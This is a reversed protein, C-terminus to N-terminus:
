LVFFVYYIWKHSERNENHHHHRRSTQHLRDFASRVASFLLMNLSWENSITKQEHIGNSRRMFCNRETKQQRRKACRCVFFAFLSFWRISILRNQQNNKKRWRRRKVQKENTEIEKFSHSCTRACVFMCNWQEPIWNMIKTNNKQPM